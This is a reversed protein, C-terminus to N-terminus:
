FLIVGLDILGAFGTGLIVMWSFRSGFQNQPHHQFFAHLFIHLILFVDLWERVGPQLIIGNAFGLFLLLLLPIHAATFVFYGTEEKLRSLLPFITWERCLVADMEHVILFALGILFFINTDM